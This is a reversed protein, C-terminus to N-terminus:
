AQALRPNGTVTLIYERGGVRVSVQHEELHKKGVVKYKMEPHERASRYMEPHEESLSAMREEFEDMKRAVEEPSDEVSLEPVVPEWEGNEANYRLWRSSISVIDSPHNVAFNFFKQKVLLNRNGQVIASEMMSAMYAFPDDAKSRQGKARVLPRTFAGDEHTLYTYTDDSTEEEFGRLPIYHEYMESIEEYMEGSIMGTERSKSLAARTIGRVKQWLAETDHEAEFAEVMRRAEEEAEAVDKLGTLATLGAYDKMQDERLNGEKMDREAMVRNRELGHKAIMYDVLTAYEEEDRALRAVEVMLPKFLHREALNIEALNVSSLRNEGLYANEYGPIEEVNTYEDGLVSRMYTKLALISDQMAEQTQYASSKILREYSERAQETAPSDTEGERYLINNGTNPNEFNEIINTASDTDLYDVEALTKRQKNIVDRVKEKDVYLLKGQNIWNLWESNNKPFIGRIDSVIIGRRNQNSHIGVLYNKGQNEVELILNQSKQADGYRFIAIPNQISNVLNRIDMIDFPHKESESHERLVKSSMEIRANPVGTSLLIDGPKGLYYIHGTPLTGQKQKKLEGNFRSNVESLDEEERMYEKDVGLEYQKAIDSALEFIGDHKHESLNEYSRWLIYRLDNDSYKYASDFGLKRLLKHWMDKVLDWFGRESAKSFDTDEALGALYEETATLFDWGRKASMHAIELRIDEAANEYVDWLFEDMNKGFLQRLGHHAVAEHLVTKEIDAVSTHNRLVITIEGTDKNYFGKAKRNMPSLTRRDTVIEVNKLGLKESLTKVREEMEKLKREAPSLASVTTDGVRELAANSEDLIEKGKDYSKEVGRLLDKAPLYTNSNNSAKGVNASPLSLSNASGEVGNFSSPVETSLLEANTSANSNDSSKGVKGTPLPRGQMDLTALEGADNSSSPVETSLLEVNTVEYTYQTNPQAEEEYERMTTKVRYVEGDIDIAGYFRHILINPNYGNEEGRKGNSKKYDPHEEVEISNGIVDDLHNLVAIHAGMNASKDIAKKSMSKDISEGSITYDFKAGYNSYHLTKGQYKATADAIAQKRADMATGKYGHKPISVVRVSKEKLGPMVTGKNKVAQAVRRSFSKREDGLRYLTSEEADRKEAEAIIRQAEAWDEPHEKKWNEFDSDNNLHRIVSGFQNYSRFDLTGNTNWMEWLGHRKGDKYFSRERLKGDFHWEEFLGDRKDNKYFSHELHYGRFSWAEQLGNRKGDKYRERSSPRGDFGWEEQLGDKMGDKYNYRSKLQGSRGWWAEQLGDRKGDKYHERSSPQGNDDWVEQLGDRKGDKYYLRSRQQGNEHWGEQLGDPEGGKYHLRSQQQGNEHWAEWLGDRKGDKYRERVKKRGKDYWEEYTGNQKNGKFINTVSAIDGTEEDYVITGSRGLEDGPIKGVTPIGDYHPADQRDWWTLEFKNDSAFFATLKGDKFAVRKPFANYHKWYKAADKTLNGEGDGQLLCWPSADKGFHTNLIRRMAEQGKRSNDVAYTTIGGKLVRKDSLEPVTDPDIPKEKPVYDKYTELLEMPSRFTMADAGKAKAVEMAEDVKAMDEPLRITGESLWKVAVKIKKTNEKSDELGHLYDLAEKVMEEPMDPRRKKILEEYQARAKKGIFYQTGEEPTTSIDTGEVLDRLPMKVFDELSVKAVEERTWPMMTNKVWKMVDRLWVRLNEIISVKEMKAFIGEAKLADQMMDELLEAGGEGSLRAHVESALLDEDEAIDKYAPDNKMKEWLPTAKMLAKGKEWLEPNKQQIARDWLHTYEHIPTNPNMLNPDLYIKGDRVFGYVEGSATRLFETRDKIVMDGEDFIVYNKASDKRGGSRYQAPYSIGTYGISHLFLSAQKDSGLADQM